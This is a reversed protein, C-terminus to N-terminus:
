MSISEPESESADVDVCGRESVVASMVSANVVGSFRFSSLSLSVVGRTVGGNLVNLCGSVVIM